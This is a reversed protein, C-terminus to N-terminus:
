VTFDDADKKGNIGQVEVDLTGSDEGCTWWCCRGSMGGDGIAGVCVERSVMWELLDGGDGDM